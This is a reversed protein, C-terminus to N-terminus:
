SHTHGKIGESKRKRDEEGREETRKGREEMQCLETGKIRIVVFTPMFCVADAEVRFERAASGNPKWSM